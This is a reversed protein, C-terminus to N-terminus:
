WVSLGNLKEVREELKQSPALTVFRGCEGLTGTGMLGNINPGLRLPRGAPRDFGVTGIQHYSGIRSYSGGKTAFLIESLQERRELSGCVALVRDDVMWEDYKLQNAPHITPSDQDLRVEIFHPEDLSTGKRIDAINVVPYQVGVKTWETDSLNAFGCRGGRDLVEELGRLTVLKGARHGVTYVRSNQRTGHYEASLVDIHSEGICQKIDKYRHSADILQPMTPVILGYKSALEDAQERAARYSLPYHNPSNKATIAVIINNSDVSDIDQRPIFEPITSLDM